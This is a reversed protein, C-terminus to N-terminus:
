GLFFHYKKVSFCEFIEGLTEVIRLSPSSERGNIVYAVEFGVKKNTYNRLIVDYLMSQAMGDVITDDILTPPSSKM